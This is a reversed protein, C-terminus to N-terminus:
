FLKTYMGTHETFVDTLMDNYVDCYEEYMTTNIARSEEGDACRDSWAKYDVKMLELIKEIENRM